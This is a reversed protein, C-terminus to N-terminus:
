INRLGTDAQGEGLDKREDCFQLHKWPRIFIIKKLTIAEVAVSLHIKNGDGPTPNRDWGKPYGM